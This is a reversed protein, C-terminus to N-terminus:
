DGRELDRLLINRNMQALQQRALLLTGSDTILRIDAFYKLARADHWDAAIHRSSELGSAPLYVGDEDYPSFLATRYTYEEGIAKRMEVAVDAGFDTAAVPSMPYDVPKASIEGQHMSQLVAQAISVVTHVDEATEPTRVSQSTRAPRAIEVAGSLLDYLGKHDSPASSPLFLDGEILQPKNGLVSNLTGIATLLGWSAQPWTIECLEPSVAKAVPPDSIGPAAVTLRRAESFLHKVM